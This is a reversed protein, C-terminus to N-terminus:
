AFISRESYINLYQNKWAEYDVNVKKTKSLDINELADHLQEINENEIFCDIDEIDRNGPVNTAIVYKGAAKADLLSYPSVEANSLSIVVDSALIYYVVQNMYIPEIYIIREDVPLQEKDVGVVYLRDLKGLSHYKEWYDRFIDWGKAAGDCAIILGQTGSHIIQIKDNLASVNPITYTVRRNVSEVWDAAEKGVAIIRDAADIAKYSVPDAHGWNSDNIDKERNKYAERGFLIDQRWPVCHVSLFTEDFPELDLRAMLNISHCDLILRSNIGIVTDEAKFSPLVKQDVLEKIRANVKNAIDKISDGVIYNYGKKQYEKGIFCKLVFTDVDVDRLNEVHECVGNDRDIPALLVHVVTPRMEELERRSSMSLRHYDTCETEEKVLVVKGAIAMRTLEKDDVNPRVSHNFDIPILGESIYYAPAQKRDCASRIMEDELAFHIQAETVGKAIWKTAPTIENLSINVIWHMAKPEYGGGIICLAGFLNHHKYIEKVIDNYNDSTHSGGSSCVADKSYKYFTLGKERCTLWLDLDEAGDTGERYHAYEKKMIITPHAFVNGYNLLRVAEKEDVDGVAVVNGLASPSLIPAYNIDGKLEYSFRNPLCVDDDDMRAIWEGKAVSIGYNLASVIGKGPNDVVTADNCKLKKGSDNVVIIEYEIGAFDLAKKTTDIANQLTKRGLSPIVVSIM